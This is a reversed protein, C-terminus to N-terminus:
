FLLERIAQFRYIGTKIANGIYNVHNARTWCRATGLQTNVFSPNINERTVDAQFGVALNHGGDTVVTAAFTVAIYLLFSSHFDRSM